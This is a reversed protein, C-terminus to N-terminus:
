VWVVHLMSVLGTLALFWPNTELLMRKVEDIEGSAGNGQQKAAESFGHTMSAFAQFKILGMPQFVIQLPLETTSSNVEVYHQRLQWFENPFVIPKYFGKSPDTPDRVDPVLHVDASLYALLRQPDSFVSTSDRM